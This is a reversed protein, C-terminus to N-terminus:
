QVKYGVNEIAGIINARSHESVVDVRGTKLDITVQAKPDLTQIAKQVTSTCHGCSMGTVKFEQSM